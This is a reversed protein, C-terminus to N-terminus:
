KEEQYLKKQCDPCISHTFDVGTREGIYTEIREWVESDNRIKKCNACIPILERLQLLETIDEIMVLARSRNLKVASLVISVNVKKRGHKLELATAKRFVSGASFTKKVSNRLVCSKCEESGGCGRKTNFSNVCLLVDGCRKRIIKYASKGLLNREAHKNYAFIRADKDVVFASMPMSQFIKKFIDNKMSGGHLNDTLEIM